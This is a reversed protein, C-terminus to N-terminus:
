AKMKVRWVFCLLIEHNKMCTSEDLQITFCPNKKTGKVVQNEIDTTM